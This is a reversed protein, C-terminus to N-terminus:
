FRQCTGFHKNSLDVPRKAARRAREALVELGRSGSVDRGSAVPVCGTGHPLVGYGAGLGQPFTASAVKHGGHKADFPATAM